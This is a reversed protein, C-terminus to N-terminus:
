TGETVHSGQTGMDQFPYAPWSCTGMDNIHAGMNKVNTGLNRVHIGMNTVHTGMDIVHNGLAGIYTLFPVM